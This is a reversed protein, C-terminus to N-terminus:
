RQAFIMGRPTGQVDTYQDIRFGLGLLIDILRSGQERKPRDGQTHYEMALRSIRRAIEAPMNELIEFEAGECDLKLFNCCEIAYREFLDQLRVAEVTEGRSAEGALPRVITHHGSGLPSLYVTTETASTGVVAARLPTVNPLRNRSVNECLLRFNAEVPEVSVVRGRRARRGADLALAGINGGVDVVTDTERIEYGPPGYAREVMVERVYHEDAELRRVRLDFGAVRLSKTRWGLRILMRDLAVAARTPLRREVLMATCSRRLWNGAPRQPEAVTVLTPEFIKGM